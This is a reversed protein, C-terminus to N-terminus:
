YGFPLNGCHPSDCKLFCEDRSQKLSGICFVLPEAGHMPPDGRLEMALMEFDDSVTAEVEERSWHDSM